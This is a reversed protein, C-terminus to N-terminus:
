KAAKRELLLNELIRYFDFLLIFLAFIMPIWYVENEVKTRADTAKRSSGLNYFNNIDSFEGGSTNRQLYRIGLKEAINKLNGEDIKSIHETDTASDRIGRKSIEGKSDIEHVIGGQSTGYGIVAGGRLNSSLSDPVTTTREIDEGDSFFFLLNDRDEFRKASKEIHEASTALLKTLDSNMSLDSSKPKLSDIYSIAADTDNILPMSQYVNYDMMFISYKSGPFLKLIKKMDEAVVEYRYKSGSEMDRVAMSGTNDVVFFINLNSLELDSEITGIAPRTLAILLLGAIGIRRFTKAKRYNPKIVCVITCSALLAFLAILVLLPINTAFIM